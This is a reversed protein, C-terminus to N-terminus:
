KRSKVVEMVIPVVSVLIIGVVLYHFNEKVIPINGFFYGGLTFLSVWVLGGWFNFSIFKKYDMKGVGAVFPAFTRVIPVFRALVIAKGGHKDYFAQAKHLYEPKLIKSIQLEYNMIRLKFNPDFAKAGIKFGIWYNVTDGLFAAAVMLGWLLWINFANLSASLAGAAFLLSDGPLFPMIVLGTEAFIVLFLLGYSWGGMTVIVAALNKDIHLFLNVLYRMTNM